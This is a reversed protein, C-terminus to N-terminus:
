ITLEEGFHAKWRIKFVHWEAEELSTFVQDKFTEIETGRVGSLKGLMWKRHAEICILVFKGAMEEGRFIGLVRQLEPSHHGFPKSRFERALAIDPATANTKQNM